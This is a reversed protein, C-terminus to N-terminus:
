FHSGTVVDFQTRRAGEGKEFAGRRGLVEGLLGRRQPVAVHREAVLAAEVPRRTKVLGGRPHSELGQDPRPHLDPTDVDGASGRVGVARVQTRGGTGRTGGTGRNVWPGRGGRSGWIGWFGWNSAFEQEQGFRGGAIPAETPEESEGVGAAFLALGTGGPVLELGM